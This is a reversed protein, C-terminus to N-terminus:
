NVKSVDTFNNQSLEGDGISYTTNTDTWPVNVFM